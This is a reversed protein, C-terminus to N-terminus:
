HVCCCVSGLVCVGHVIYTTHIHIYYTYYRALIDPDTHIDLLSLNTLATLQSDETSQSAPPGTTTVTTSDSLTASLLPQQLDSIVELLKEM